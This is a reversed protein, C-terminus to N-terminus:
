GQAHLGGGLLGACVLLLLLQPQMASLDLVTQSGCQISITPRLTRCLAVPISSLSLDNEAPRVVPEYPIHTTLPCLGYYIRALHYSRLYSVLKLQASSACIEHQTAEVIRLTFDGVHTAMVINLCGM